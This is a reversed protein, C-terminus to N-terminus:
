RRYAGGVSAAQPRYSDSKIEFKWVSSKSEFQPSKRIDEKTAAWARTEREAKHEIRDRVPMM